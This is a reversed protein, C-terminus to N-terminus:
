ASSGSLPHGRAGGRGTAALATAADAAEASCCEWSDLIVRLTDRSATRSDAILVRMGKLAHCAESEAAGWRQRAFEATFWFTSGKGFESAAGIQGGMLEVLEKAITLGLGTGGFKRTTSGDGQVFPDFLGPIESEPMGVGTDSVTFRLMAAEKDASEVGVSVRVSGRLTFKVANGVLNVLVQHLRAADGWLAMPTDPSVECTLDLGKEHARAAVIDVAQRLCSGLDFSRKELMLKKAELKSYDLIGNVVAILNEGSDHIIEAYRRQEPTLETDLILGSMGIVGNLPDIEHSMNALFQSKIRAADEAAEKARIMALEVEKRESIDRIIGLGALEGRFECRRINIEVPVTSGDKRRHECTFRCEGDRIIQAQRERAIAEGDDPEFEEIPMNLLEERSYGYRRLATANVEMIRRDSLRVIIIADSASNFVTKFEEDLRRISEQALKRQTIDLVAVILGTIEGSEDRFPACNVLVYIKGHGAPGNLSLEKDQVTEGRDLVPQGIAVIQDALEPISELLTRGICESTTRGTIAALRENIRIRRYDRDLLELGVPACRYIQEIEALRERARRESRLLEQEFRKRESIDRFFWVRGLYKGLHTILPSSHRELMRGDKLEIECHDEQDPHAFLQMLRDVFEQPAKVHDAIATLLAGSSAAMLGPEGGQSPEPALGWIEAFKRNYSIAAGHSTVLLIGDPSAAYMANLVSCAGESAGAASLIKLGTDTQSEEQRQSQLLRAETCSHPLAASSIGEDASGGGEKGQKFRSSMAPTGKEVTFRAVGRVIGRTLKSGEERISAAGNWKLAPIARM